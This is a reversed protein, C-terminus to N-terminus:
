DRLPTRKAENARGGREDPRTPHVLRRDGRAACALAESYSRGPRACVARRAASRGNERICFRLYLASAAGFPHM